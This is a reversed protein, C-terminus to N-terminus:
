SIRSNRKRSVRKSTRTEEITKELREVKSELALVKEDITNIKEMVENIDKRQYSRLGGFMWELYQTGLKSIPEFFRGVREGPLFPTWVMTDLARFTYSEWTDFIRRYVNVLDGKDKDNAMRKRKRGQIRKRTTKGIQLLSGEEAEKLIDKLSRKPKSSM